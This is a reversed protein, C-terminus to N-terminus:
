INLLSILGLRVLRNSINHISWHYRVISMVNVAIPGWRVLRVVSVVNFAILCWMVLRNSKDIYQGM